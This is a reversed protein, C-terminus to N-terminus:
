EMPICFLFFLSSAAEVLHYQLHLNSQKRIKIEVVFLPVVAEWPQQLDFDTYGYLFPTM